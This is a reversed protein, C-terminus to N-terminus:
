PHDGPRIAYWADKLVKGLTTPELNCALHYQGTVTRQKGGYLLPRSVSRKTNAVSFRGFIVKLAPQIIADIVKGVDGRVPNLDNEAQAVEPLNNDPSDPNSLLGECGLPVETCNNASYLWACTRAETLAAHKATSLDRLYFVSIFLLVLVPL